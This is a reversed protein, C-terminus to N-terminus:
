LGVIYAFNEEIISEATSLNRDDGRGMAIVEGEKEGISLTFLM